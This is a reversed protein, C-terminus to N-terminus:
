VAIDVASLSRFMPHTVDEMFFAENSDEFEQTVSVLRIGNDNLLSKYNMAQLIHRSFRSLDYVLVISWAPSEGAEKVMRQFDPRKDNTGSCAMDVFEDVLQIGKMDCYREIEERQHEISTESQDKSACRMYAVAKKM